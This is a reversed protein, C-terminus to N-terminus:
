FRYQELFNLLIYFFYTDLFSFLIFSWKAQILFCFYCVGCHCSYSLSYSVFIAVPIVYRCTTWRLELWSCFCFTREWLAIRYAEYGRLHARLAITNISVCHKVIQEARNACVLLTVTIRSQCTSMACIWFRISNLDFPFVFLLRGENEEM